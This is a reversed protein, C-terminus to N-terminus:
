EDMDSDSAEEEDKNGNLYNNKIWGWGGTGTAFFPKQQRVLDLSQPDQRPHEGLLDGSKLIQKCIDEDEKTIVKYVHHSCGYLFVSYRPHINVQEEEDAQEEEVAQEEEENVKTKGRPSSRSAPKSVHIYHGLNKKRQPKTSQEGSAAAKATAKQKRGTASNPNTPTQALVSPTPTIGLELFLTIYPRMGQTPDTSRFFELKKENIAYAVRSGAVKQAKTQGLFATFNKPLLPANRDMLVPIVWDVLEANNRCIGAMGRVFLGVMGDESLAADDGLKGWHTFNVVANKFVDRFKKGKGKLLNDPESDLIANACDESFLATIFDIVSVCKSFHINEGKNLGNESAGDRGMTFLTRGVAEGIEGRSLLAHQLNHQLIDIETRTRARSEEIERMRWERLQRAAAEALIPESSYGSRLYERDKPISYVTRMHNAVLEMEHLRASTRNAEYSLMIRVDLVATQATHSFKSRSQRPSNNRLLKSRAFMLLTDEKSPNVESSQSDIDSSYM